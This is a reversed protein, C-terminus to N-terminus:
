SGSKKNFCLQPDLESEEELKEHTWKLYIQDLLEFLGAVVDGKNKKFISKTFSDPEPYFATNLYPAIFPKKTESYTLGGPELIQWPDLIFKLPSYEGANIELVIEAKIRFRDTLENMWVQFVRNSEADLRESYGTPEPDINLNFDELRYYPRPLPKFNLYHPELFVEESFHYGITHKIRLKM